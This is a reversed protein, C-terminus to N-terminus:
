ATASARIGWRCKLTLNVVGGAAGQTQPGLWSMPERWKLERIVNRDASALLGAGASRM